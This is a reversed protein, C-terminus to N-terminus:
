ALLHGQVDHDSVLVVAISYESTTSVQIDMRGQRGGDRQWSGLVGPGGMILGRGESGAWRRLLVHWRTAMM